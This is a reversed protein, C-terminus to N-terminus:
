VTHGNILDRSKDTESKIDVSARQAQKSVDAGYM